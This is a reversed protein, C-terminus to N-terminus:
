LDGWDDDPDDKQVSVRTRSSPTMGFETMIAKMQDFAKNAISLWPSQMPYGSKAIVITGETRVKDNAEVWRAYAECYMALADIDLNTMIKADYLQQVVTGWHVSAADSLVDPAVPKEVDPMPENKNLARKGPNGEVIKLRRPKPKQGRAQAM